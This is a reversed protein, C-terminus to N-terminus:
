TATLAWRLDDWRQQARESVERDWIAEPQKLDNTNQQFVADTQEQFWKEIEARRRSIEQAEEIFKHASEIKATMMAQIWTRISLIPTFIAHEIKSSQVSWALYLQLTSYLVVLTLPIGLVLWERAEFTFGLVNISDPKDTALCLAILVLSSVLVLRARSDVEGTPRISEYATAWSNHADKISAIRAAQEDTTPGTESDAM